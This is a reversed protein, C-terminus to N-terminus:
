AYDKQKNKVLANLWTFAEGLTMFGEFPAALFMKEIKLAGNTFRNHMVVAFGALNPFNEEVKFYGTPDVSYSYIRNSLYGFPRGQYYKKIQEILELTDDFVLSIGENIESIVVNDFFYFTGFDYQVTQNCQEKYTSQFTTMKVLYLEPQM